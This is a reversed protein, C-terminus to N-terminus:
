AGDFFRKPGNVTMARIAQDTVGLARLAPLAKRTVFLIGDPNQAMRGSIAATPFLTAAFLWDNGLMIREPWGADVHAKVVTMREELTLPGDPTGPSPASRSGHDMSIHYGRRALGLTYDEDRSDDSHGICVKSPSLGEAEFITAQKEGVRDGAPSHTTIPVGTAKSARAAARLVKEGFETIEGGNAVKIVGAKIDTDEIGVEIERSFFETLEEVTRSNMSFSGDVWHGTCAIVQVGSKRSIEEMLRIDRGLDFTTVDVFSDVGEDKAQRLKEVTDNVFQARDGFLEPWARRLGPSTATIHEHSLTFGLSATDIPGLVTQVTGSASAPGQPAGGAFALDGRLVSVAGLGAALRGIVERRSLHRNDADHWKKM